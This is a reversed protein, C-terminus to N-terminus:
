CLCFHESKSWEGPSPVLNRPDGANKALQDLVKIYEPYTTAAGGRAGDAPVNNKTIFEQVHQTEDSLHHPVYGRSASSRTRSSRVCGRCSSRNVKRSSSTTEM